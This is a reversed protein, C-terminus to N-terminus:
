SGTSGGTASHQVDGHNGYGAGSEDTDNDTDPAQAPTQQNDRDRGQKQGNMEDRQTIDDAM